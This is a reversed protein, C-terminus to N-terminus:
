SPLWDAMGAESAAFGAKALWQYRHQSFSNLAHLIKSKEDVLIPIQDIDASILCRQEQELIEVLSSIAQSEQEFTM